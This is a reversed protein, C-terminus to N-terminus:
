KAVEKPDDPVHGLRESRAKTVTRRPSFREQRLPGSAATQDAKVPDDPLQGQRLLAALADLLQERRLAMVPTTIPSQPPDNTGSADDRAAGRTADHNTTQESM